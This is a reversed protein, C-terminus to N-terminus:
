GLMGQNMKKRIEELMIETIAPLDFDYGYGWDRTSVSDDISHPWTEAIAQRFDPKYDIKFDPIHKVIERYIDDPAISLGGVNYANHVTLKDARAEMLDIIPYVVLQGPGHFTINGGREVQIV